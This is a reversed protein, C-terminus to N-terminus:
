KGSSPEPIKTRPQTGPQPQAQLPVVTPPNLEQKREKPVTPVIGFNVQLYARDRNEQVEKMEFAFDDARTPFKSALKEFGELAAEWHPLAVSPSLYKKGENASHRAQAISTEFEARTQEATTLEKKLQTVKNQAATAESRVEARDFLAQAASYPQCSASWATLRGVGNSLPLQEAESKLHRAEALLTLYKENQALGERCSKEQAQIDATSLITKAKGLTALAARWAAVAEIGTEASAANEELAAVERMFAKYEPPVRQAIDLTLRDSAANSWSTESQRRAQFL